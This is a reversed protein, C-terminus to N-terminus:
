PTKVFLLSRLGQLFGLRSSNNNNNNNNNSLNFISLNFISIHEEAGDSPQNSPHILCQRRSCGQM